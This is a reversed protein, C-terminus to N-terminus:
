SPSSQKEAIKAVVMGPKVHSEDIEDNNDGKLKYTGDSWFGVIRHAIHTERERRKKEFTISVDGNSLEQITQVSTLCESIKRNQFEWCRPDYIVIDGEKLTRKDTENLYILWLNKECLLNMSSTCKARIHSYTPPSAAGVLNPALLSVVIGLILASLALSKKGRQKGVTEKKDPKKRQAM